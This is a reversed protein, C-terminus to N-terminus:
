PCLYYRAHNTLNRFNILNMLNSRFSTTLNFSTSLYLNNIFNLFYLRTLLCISNM